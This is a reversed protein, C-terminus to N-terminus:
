AQPGQTLLARVLGLERYPYLFLPNLEREIREMRAVQETMRMLIQQHVERLRSAEAIAGAARKLLADEDPRPALALSRDQRAHREQAEALADLQTAQDLLRQREDKL